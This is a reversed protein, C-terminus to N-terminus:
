FVTESRKSKVKNKEFKTVKCSELISIGTTYLMNNFKTNVLKRRWFLPFCNSIFYNESTFLFIFLSWYLASIVILARRLQTIFM